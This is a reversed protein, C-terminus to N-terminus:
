ERVMVAKLRTNSRAAVPEAMAPWMWPRLWWSIATRASPVRAFRNKEGRTVQYSVLVPGYTKKEEKDAEFRLMETEAVSASAFVVKVAVLYAGKFFSSVRM